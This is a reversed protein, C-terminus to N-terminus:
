PKQIFYDDLSKFIEYMAYYPSETEVAQNQLFDRYRIYLEQYEESKGLKLLILRRLM